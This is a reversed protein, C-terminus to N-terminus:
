LQKKSWAGLYLMYDRLLASMQVNELIDKKVLVGGFVLRRSNVRAKAGCFLDMACSSHRRRRVSTLHPALVLLLCGMSTRGTLRPTKAMTSSSIPIPKSGAKGTIHLEVTDHATGTSSKFLSYTLQCSSNRQNSCVTHIM